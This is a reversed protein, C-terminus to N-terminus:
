CEIVHLGQVRLFHKDRAILPLNRQRALAAIWIDNIPIMQGARELEVFIHAYFQSTVQSVGLVLCNTLGQAVASLAAEPRNAKLAGVTLEALTVFTVAFQKDRLIAIVAPDRRLLGVIASTDAIYDVGAM